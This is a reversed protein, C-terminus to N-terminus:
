AARVDALKIVNEATDAVDPSHIRVYDRIRAAVMRPTAHGIYNDEHFFYKEVGADLDFVKRIGAWGEIRLRPTKPDTYALNYRYIRRGKVAKPEKIRTMTFGPFIGAAAAHGMACATTGCDPGGLFGLVPRLEIDQRWQVLDFRSEPITDLFNAMKALNEINAM